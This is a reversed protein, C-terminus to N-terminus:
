SNLYDVLRDPTRDPNYYNSPPGITTLVKGVFLDVQWGAYACSTHAPNGKGIGQNRDCEYGANHDSGNPAQGPPNKADAKGVSGTAPQHGHRGPQSCTPNYAGNDPPGSTNAGPGDSPYADQLVVCDRDASVTPVKITLTGSPARGVQADALIQTVGYDFTAAPNHYSALGVTTGECGPALTYTVTITDGSRAGSQALSDGTPRGNVAVEYSGGTDPGFAEAASCSTVPTAALAGTPTAAWWGALGIGAIAGGALAKRLM